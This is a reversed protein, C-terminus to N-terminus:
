YKPSVDQWQVESEKGPRSSTEAHGQPGEEATDADVDHVTNQKPLKRVPYFM